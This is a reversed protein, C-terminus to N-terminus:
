QPEESIIEKRESADSSLAADALRELESLLRPVDRVWDQIDRIQAFQECDGWAAALLHAADLSLDQRCAFGTPLHTITYQVDSGIEIEGDDSQKIAILTKHVAVCGYVVASVARAEACLQRGNSDVWGITIAITREEGVLVTM